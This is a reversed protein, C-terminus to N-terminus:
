RIQNLTNHISEFYADMNNTNDVILNYEPNKKESYPGIICKSRSFGAICANKTDSKPNCFILYDYDTMLFNKLDKTRPLGTAYFDAKDFALNKFSNGSIERNEPKKKSFIAIIEVSKGNNRLTKAFNNIALKDKEAIPENVIMVYAKSEAFPTLSSKKTKGKLKRYLSLFLIKSRIKM